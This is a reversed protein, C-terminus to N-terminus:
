NEKRRRNKAQEAPTAWRCNAPEYNGESDIRDLTKGEPREGMDELFAVFNVAWRECVSVGRGGYNKYYAHTPSLCRNKMARWTNYTPSPKNNCNHGHALSGAAYRDRQLCGCSKTDGTRLYPNPVTVENGCECRCRWARAKRLVGNQEIVTLRGFTQGTLDLIKPM